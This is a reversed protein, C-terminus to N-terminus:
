PQQDFTGHENCVGVVDTSKFNTRVWEVDAASMNQVTHSFDLRRLHQLTALQDFGSEMRCDLGQTTKDKFGFQLNILCNLQALQEFVGRSQASIEADVDTDVIISVAFTELARCIWPKGQTIRNALIRKASIYTLCPCSELTTEIMVGTFQNSRMTIRKLSAFHRSLAEFSLDGFRNITLEKLPPIATLCPALTDDRFIGWLKISELRQLHGESLVKTLAELPVVPGATTAEIILSRVCPCQKLFDVKHLPWWICIGLHLVGLNPYVDDSAQEMKQDWPCVSHISLDQLSKSGKLFAHLQQQSLNAGDIDLSRLSRRSALQTWFEVPAEAGPGIVVIHLNVNKQVFDTAQSWEDSNQLMVTNYLKLTTLQTCPALYRGLTINDGYVLTRIHHANRTLGEQDLGRACAREDVRCTRWIIESFVDRWLQCVRSPETAEGPTFFGSLLYVIEPILLPNAM